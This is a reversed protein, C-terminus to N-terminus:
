YDSNYFIGSHKNQACTWVGNNVLQPFKLNNLGQPGEPKKKKEQFDYM